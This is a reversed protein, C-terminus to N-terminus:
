MGCACACADLCAFLSACWCTHWCVRVRVRVRVRSTALTVCCKSLWFRWGASRAEMTRVGERPRPDSGSSAAGHTMSGRPGDSEDISKVRSKLGNPPRVALSVTQHYCHQPSPLRPHPWVPNTPLPGPSHPGCCLAPRLLRLLVVNSKSLESKPWVQCARTVAM